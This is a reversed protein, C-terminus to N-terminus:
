GERWQEETDGEGTYRDRGQRDIVMGLGGAQRDRWDM